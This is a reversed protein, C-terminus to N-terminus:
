YCISNMEISEVFETNLGSSLALWRDLELEEGLDEEFKLFKFEGFQRSLKTFFHRLITRATMPEFVGM